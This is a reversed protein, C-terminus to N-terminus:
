VSGSGKSPRSDVNSVPITIQRSKDAPLAPILGRIDFPGFMGSTTWYLKQAFAGSSAAICIVGLLAAVIKKM